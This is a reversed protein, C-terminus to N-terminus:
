KHLANKGEKKCPKKNEQKGRAAGRRRRGRGVGSGVARGRELEVREIDFKGDTLAIRILQHPKLGLQRRQEKGRKFVFVHRHLGDADGEARGGLCGCLCEFVAANIEGEHRAPDIELM